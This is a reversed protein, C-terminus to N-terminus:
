IKGIQLFHTKKKLEDLCELHPFAQKEHQILFPLLNDLHCAGAIVDSLTVHLDVPL